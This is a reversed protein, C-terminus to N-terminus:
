TAGADASQAQEWHASNATIQSWVYRVRMPKGKDLYDATFTGVGNEFKGKVPPDLSGHPVRSDMWWIAWTATQPDYARMGIGYTTGTPRNFTHEEVNVAGGAAPRTVCAGEMEMWQNKGDVIRLFRHHVRWEGLEFDFDHLGSLDPAPQAVAAALASSVLLLCIKIM